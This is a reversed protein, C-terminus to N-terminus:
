YYQTSKISVTTDACYRPILAPAHHLLSAAGCIIVLFKHISSQYPDFVVTPQLYPSIQPCGALRHDRESNKKCKSVKVAVWVKVRDAQTDRQARAHTAARPTTVLQTTVVYAQIKLVSMLIQKVPTLYLRSIILDLYVSTCMNSMFSSIDLKGDLIKM